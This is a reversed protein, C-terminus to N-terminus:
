RHNSESFQCLGSRLCYRARSISNILRSCASRRWNILGFDQWNARGPDRSFSPSDRDLVTVSLLPGSTVDARAACACLKCGVLYCTKSSTVRMRHDTIDRLLNTQGYDIRAVITISNDNISTLVM